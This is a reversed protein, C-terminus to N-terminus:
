GRRDGGEVALVQARNRVEAALARPVCSDCGGCGCTDDNGVIEAAELLGTVRGRLYEGQAAEADRGALVEAAFADLQANVSEAEGPALHWGGDTLSEFLEERATV